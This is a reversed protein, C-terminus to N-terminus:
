KKLIKNTLVVVFVGTAVGLSTAIWSPAASIDGFVYDLAAVGVLSACFVLVFFVVLWEIIEIFTKM